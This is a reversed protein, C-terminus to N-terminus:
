NKMKGNNFYVCKLTNLKLVCGVVTYRRRRPCNSVLVIPVISTPALIHVHHQGLSCEPPVQSACHNHLQTDAIVSLFSFIHDTTRRILEEPRQAEGVTMQCWRCHLGTIGNYSKVPKRCKSCKGTCNGETWHHLFTQPSPFPHKILHVSPHPPFSTPSSPFCM